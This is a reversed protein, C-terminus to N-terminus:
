GIFGHVYRWHILYQKIDQLCTLMLPSQPLEGADQALSHQVLREGSGAAVVEALGAQVGFKLHAYHILFFTQVDDPM